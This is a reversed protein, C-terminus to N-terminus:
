LLDNFFGHCTQAVVQDLDFAGCAPQQTNVISKGQAGGTSPWGAGSSSCNM